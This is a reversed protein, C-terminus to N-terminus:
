PLGPLNPLNLCAQYAPMLRWYDDMMAELSPRREDADLYSCCCHCDLSM